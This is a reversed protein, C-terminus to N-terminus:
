ETIAKTDDERSPPDSHGDDRYVETTFMIQSLQADAKSRTFVNPQSQLNVLELTNSTVEKISGTGERLHRRVNLVALLSNAYVKSGPVHFVMWIMVVQGLTGLYTLLHLLQITSTLLGRNIAYTALKSLLTNTQKFGTHRDRLILCLSISIYADAIISAVQQVSAPIEATNLVVTIDRSDQFCKVTGMGGALATLALCIGFTTAPLRYWRNDLLRWINFMFYCQVVCNSLSIFFFAAVFSNPVLPIGSSDGHHEIVIYWFFQTELMMTVTDFFWMVLVLFKLFRRDNPYKRFYYGTQGCTCAYFVWGLAIGILIPGLTSDLHVVPGAMAELLYWFAREAGKHTRARRSTGARGLTEAREDMIDTICSFLICLALRIIPAIKLCAGFHFKRPAPVGVKEM